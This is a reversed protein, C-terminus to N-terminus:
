VDKKGEHDEVEVEGEIEDAGNGDAKEIEESVKVTSGGDEEAKEKAIQAKLKEIDFGSITKKRGWVKAHSGGSSSTSSGVKAIRNSAMVAMMSKKLRAKARKKSAKRLDSFAKRTNQMSWYCYVGVAMLGMGGFRAVISTDRISYQKLGVVAVCVIMSYLVGKLAYYRSDKTSLVFPDFMHLDKALCQRLYFLQTSLIILGYMNLGVFGIVLLRIIENEFDQGSSIDDLFSIGTGALLAAIVQVTEIAEVVHARRESDEPQGTDEETEDPHAPAKHGSGRRKM